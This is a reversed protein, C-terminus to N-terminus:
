ATLGSNHGPLPPVKWFDTHYEVAGSFIMLPSPYDWDGLSFYLIHFVPPIKANLFTICIGGSPVHPLKNQFQLIVSKWPYTQDQLRCLDHHKQPHKSDALRM